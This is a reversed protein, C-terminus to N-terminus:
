QGKGANRDTRILESELEFPIVTAPESLSDAALWDSATTAIGVHFKALMSNLM